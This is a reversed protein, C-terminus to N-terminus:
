HNAEERGVPIPENSRTTSSENYNTTHSPFTEALLSKECGPAGSMLVNHSGAAAIELARKAHEHGIVHRFDKQPLTTFLPIHDNQNQNPPFALIVQGELHQIVEEIHQVVICM